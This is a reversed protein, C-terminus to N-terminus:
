EFLQIVESQKVLQRSQGYFECIIDEELSTYKLVTAGM